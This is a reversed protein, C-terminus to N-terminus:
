WKMLLDRTLKLQAALGLGAMVAAPAADPRIGLAKRAEDRGLKLQLVTTGMVQNQWYGSQPVAEALFELQALSLAARGPQGRQNRLDGFQFPANLAAGRVPDGAGGFYAGPASPDATACAALLPLLAASAIALSRTRLSALRARLGLAIAPAAVLLYVDLFRVSRVAALALVCATLLLGRGAVGSRWLPRVVLLLASTQVILAIAFAAPDDASWPAWEAVLARYRPDFVHALADLAIAPGYPSLCSAGLQLALLAAIRRRARSEGGRPGSAPRRAASSSSASRVTCAAERTTVKRIELSPKKLRTVWNGCTPTSIM